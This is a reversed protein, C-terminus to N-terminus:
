IENDIDASSDGCIINWGDGDIGIEYGETTQDVTIATNAKSAIALTGSSHPLLAAIGNKDYGLVTNVKSATPVVPFVPIYSGLNQWYKGTWEIENGTGSDKQCEGARLEALVGNSYGLAIEGKYLPVESNEWKSIEDRRSIQIINLIKKDLESM